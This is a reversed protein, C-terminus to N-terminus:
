NDNEIEQKLYQNAHYKMIAQDALEVLADSSKSYVDDYAADMDGMMEETHQADPFGYHNANQAYLHPPTTYTKYEYHLALYDVRKVVTEWGDYPLRFQKHLVRSVHNDLEQLAPISAKVPYIIDGILAEAFDHTLLAICADEGWNQSLGYNYMAVSHQLVSLDRVCRGNFRQIKSLHRLIERISIGPYKDAALDIIHSDLTEVILPTNM